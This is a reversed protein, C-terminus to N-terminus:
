QPSRSLHPTEDVLRREVVRISPLASEVEAAPHTPIESPVVPSDLFPILDWMREALRLPPPLADESGDSPLPLVGLYAVPSHAPPAIAGPSLGTYHPRDAEGTPYAPTTRRLTHACDRSHGYFLTHRTSDISRGDGSPQPSPSGPGKSSSIAAKAQAPLPTPREKPHAPVNLGRHAPSPSGGPNHNRRPNLTHSPGTTPSYLVLTKM